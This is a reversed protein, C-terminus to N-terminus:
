RINRKSSYLFVWVYQYSCIPSFYTTAILPIPLCNLTIPLMVVLLWFLSTWLVTFVLFTPYLRWPPPSPFFSSNVESAKPTATFLQSSLSEPVFISAFSPMTHKCDLPVPSLWHLDNDWFQIVDWCFSKSRLSQFYLVWWFATSM